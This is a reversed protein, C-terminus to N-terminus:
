GSCPLAFFIIAYFLVNDAPINLLKSDFLNFKVFFENFCKESMFYPIIQRLFDGM